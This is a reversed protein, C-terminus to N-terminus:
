VNLPRRHDLPRNMGASRRRNRALDDSLATFLGDLADQIGAKIAEETQRDRQCDLQAQLQDIDRPALQGIPRDELVLQEKGALHLPVPGDHLHVDEQGTRIVHQDSRREKMPTVDM